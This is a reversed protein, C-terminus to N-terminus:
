KKVIGDVIENLSLISSMKEGLSKSIERNLRDKIMKVTEDAIRDISYSLAQIKQDVMYEIRTMTGYTTVRGEKDVKESLFNTCKQCLIDEVTVNEIIVKGWENTKNFPKTFFDKMLDNLKQDFAKEIEAKKKECITAIENEVSTSITKAAEDKAAKIIENRLYEAFDNAQEIPVEDGNYSSEYKCPIVESLDLEFKITNM